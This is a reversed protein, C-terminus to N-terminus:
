AIDWTDNARASLHGDVLHDGGAPVFSLLMGLLMLPRGPFASYVQGAMMQACISRREKRRESSMKGSQHHTREEHLMTKTFYSSNMITSKVITYKVGIIWETATDLNCPLAIPAWANRCLGSHLAIRLVSSFLLFAKFFSRLLDM